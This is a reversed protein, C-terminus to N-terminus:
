RDCTRPSTNEVSNVRDYNARVIVCQSSRSRWFTAYREGRNWKDDRIRFGKDDLDRWARATSQGVLYSVNVWGSGGNNWSGGSGGWNGGWNGNGPRGGQRRGENYGDSYGSNNNYNDYRRNDYGDRFGRDYERKYTEDKDKHGSTAIALAGILAAAGIAIAATKGGDGKKKCDENSTVALAEYSGNYTTVVICENTNENWWTGYKRSGSTSNHVEKFGRRTMEQEGSSARAGVLDRVSGPLPTNAQAPMAQVAMAFAATLGTTLKITQM